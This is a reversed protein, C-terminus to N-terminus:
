WLEQFVGCSVSEARYCLTATTTYLPNLSSKCCKYFPNETQRDILCYDREKDYGGHTRTLYRPPVSLSVCYIIVM